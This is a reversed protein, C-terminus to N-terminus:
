EVPSLGRATLLYSPADNEGNTVLEVISTGVQEATLLAGFGALFQERTAGAYEAYSDVFTSGLATAPTLQPLM